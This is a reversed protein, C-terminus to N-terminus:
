KIVVTKVNTFERIGEASLERGFGSEKIGGFPLRPDSGVYTNVAVTGSHIKKAAIEEGRQLDETFVAGALGFQSDNAIRIADAEDEAEIFAIVPGFLEDDYAPMGPKVDDLVTPPYYFGKKDPISGGLLCTAGKAISQEVQQHL